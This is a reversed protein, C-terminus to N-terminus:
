AAKGKSPRPRVVVTHRRRVVRERVGTSKKAWWDLEPRTWSFPKRPTRDLWAERGVLAAIGMLGMLYLTM